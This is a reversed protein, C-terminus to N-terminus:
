LDGFGLPRGKWPWPPQNVPWERDWVACIMHNLDIISQLWASGPPGDQSNWHAARQTMFLTCRLEVLTGSWEGSREYRERVSEAVEPCDRQLVFKALDYGNVTLGYTLIDHYRELEPNPRAWVALESPALMIWTEDSPRWPEPHEHLPHWPLECGTFVRRDDAM